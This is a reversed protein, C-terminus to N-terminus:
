GSQSACGQRSLAFKVFERVIPDPPKDPAKNYVCFLSAVRVM